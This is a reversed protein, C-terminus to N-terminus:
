GHRGRAGPLLAPAEVFSASSERLQLSTLAAMQVSCSWPQGGFSAAFTLVALLVAAPGAAHRSRMVHLLRRSDDRTLRRLPM